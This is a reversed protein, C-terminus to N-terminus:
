EKWACAWLGGRLASIRLARGLWDLGQCVAGAIVPMDGKPIFTWCGVEVRAFGAANLLRVLEDRRLFKDTSLHRTELGLLPALARYWVYGGNVTLCFFRGRPKLVRRANAVAAAKNLMHELAGVCMVVDAAGAAQTGLQEADDSLFSLRDGWASDRLGQRAIEVMAPSLDVGVGRGIDGALAMLHHGNGCGVDLVAEDRRPRAHRRILGVRYNLLREPHGHQERYARASRDFFDRVEATSRVQTTVLRTVM